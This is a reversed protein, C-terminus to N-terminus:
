GIVYRGLLGGLSYGLVSFKTVSKNSDSELKRVHECIQLPFSTEALVSRVTSVYM